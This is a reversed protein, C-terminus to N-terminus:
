FCPPPPHSSVDFTLTGVDRGTSTVTATAINVTKSGIAHGCADTVVLTENALPVTSISFAGTSTSTGALNTGQVTVIYGNLAIGTITDQIKGTVTATKQGSSNGNTNTNTNTNTNNNGNSSGGGGGGGGCGAILALVSIMLLLIALTALGASGSRLWKRHKHM